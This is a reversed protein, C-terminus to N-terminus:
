FVNYYNLDATFFHFSLLNDYFDTTSNAFPLFVTFTLIALKQKDFCKIFFDFVGTTKLSWFIVVVCIINQINWPVVNYEDGLYVV